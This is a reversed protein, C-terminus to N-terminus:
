LAKSNTHAIDVNGERVLLTLFEIRTSLLNHSFNQTWDKGLINTYLHAVHGFHSKINDFKDMETPKFM